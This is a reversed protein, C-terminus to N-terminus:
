SNDISSIRTKVTKITSFSLDFMKAFENHDVDIGNTNMFYLIFAAVTTRPPRQKLDPSKELLLLFEQQVRLTTEETFRLQKAYIPILNVPEIYGSKGQYGTSSVTNYLKLSKTVKTKDLDLMAGIMIPDFPVPPNSQLHAQIICYCIITKRSKKKSGNSTVNIYIQNAKVKIDDTLPLDRIEKAISRITPRKANITVDASSTMNAWHGCRLCTGTTDRCTHQCEPEVIEQGTSTLSITDDDDDIIILGPMSM